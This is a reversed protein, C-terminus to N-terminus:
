KTPDIHSSIHFPQYKLSNFKLRLFCNLLIFVQSNHFDNRKYEITMAVLIINYQHFLKGSSYPENSKAKIKISWHLLLTCLWFVRLQNVSAFILFYIRITFRSWSLFLPSLWSSRLLKCLRLEMEDKELDM